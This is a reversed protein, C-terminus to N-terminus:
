KDEEKPKLGLIERIKEYRKRNKKRSSGILFMSAFKYYEMAKYLAKTTFDRDNPDLTEIYKTTKDYIDPHTEQFERLCDFRGLKLSSSIVRFALAEMENKYSHEIEKGKVNQIVHFQKDAALYFNIQKLGNKCFFAHDEYADYWIGGPHRRYVSMEEDIFGIKGVQAHLLHLYYDGPEINEPFYDEIRTDTRNFRWRYVVTNAGMIFNYNILDSIEMTTKNMRAEPPPLLSDQRGSDDEWKERVLHFCISYDPHADLFDVQKQLKNPDTWYDDGECNAFYECDALKLTEIYNRPGGLNQPRLIPKIIDPYKEAYEKIIEPTHDTSADDAIYVVFPFNTKQMVFGDLTQRIFKEHNYTICNVSLRPKENQAM